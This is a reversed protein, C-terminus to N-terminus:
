ADAKVTSYWEPMDVKLDYVRGNIKFLCAGTRSVRIQEIETDTLNLLKKAISYDMEGLHFIFKYTSQSLLPKVRDKMEEDSSDFEELTQSAKLFSAYYKRFVREWDSIIDLIPLFQKKLVKQLEDMSVMVRKSRDTNSLVIQSTYSFINVWQAILRNLSSSMIDRMNYNIAQIDDTNGLYTYRNFLKADSGGPAISELNLIMAEMLELTRPSISGDKMGKEHDEQISDRIDSLLPYDTNKFQKVSTIDDTMGHKAYEKRLYREYLDLHDETWNPKYISIWKRSESIYDSVIGKKYEDKTRIQLPNIAYDNNGSVDINIGGIKEFFKVYVGEFDINRLYTNQFVENELIKMVAVTKGEGSKGMITINQNGRVYFPDFVVIDTKQYITGLYEGTPDLLSPDNFPYLNAFSESPVNQKVWKGLVNRGLPSISRYGDMQLSEMPDVIISADEVVDLFEQELKELEKKNSANLMFYVSIYYMKQNNKRIAAYAGKSSQADIEMDIVDVEDAVTSKKSNLDKKLASRWASRNLIEAYIHTTVGKLSSVKSLLNTDRTSGQFSKIAYVKSFHNGIRLHTSTYSMTVPVIMDKFNYIGPTQTYEYSVKKKKLLYEKETDKFDEETDPFEDAFIRNSFVALMQKLEKRTPITIELSSFINIIRAQVEELDEDKALEKEHFVIELFYDKTNTNKSKGELYEIYADALHVMFPIKELRKKAEELIWINKKLSFQGDQIFFGIERKNKNFDNSLNMIIKEMEEKSVLDLSNANIKFYFRVDNNEMTIIGDDIKKFPYLEQITKVKSKKWKQKRVKKHNLEEVEKRPEAKLIRTAIVFKITNCLQQYLTIRANSDHRLMMYLAPCVFCSFLLGSFKFILFPLTALLFVVIWEQLFLGKFLLKSYIYPPYQYEKPERMKM